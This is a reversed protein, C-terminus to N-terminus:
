RAHFIQLNKRTLPAIKRGSLPNVKCTMYPLGSVKKRPVWAPM